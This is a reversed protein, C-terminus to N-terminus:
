CIRIDECFRVLGRDASSKAHRSVRVARGYRERNRGRADSLAIGTDSAYWYQLNQGSIGRLHGLKIYLIIGLSRSLAHIRLAMLHVRVHGERHRFLPARIIIKTMVKAITASNASVSVPDIAVV